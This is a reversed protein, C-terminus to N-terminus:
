DGTPIPGWDCPGIGGTFGGQSPSDEQVEYTGICTRGDNFFTILISLDFGGGTIGTLTMIKGNGTGTGQGIVGGQDMITFTVNESSQSIALEVRSSNETTLCYTGSYNRYCSERGFISAFIGLEMLGPEEGLSALDLGDVDEDGDVDDTCVAEGSLMVDLPSHDADSSIIQLVANKLGTTEPAFTITMSCDEKPALSFPANPCPNAGGPALSFEAVDAGALDLSDVFLVGTGINSFSFDQSDHAGLVGVTGFDYYAPAALVRPKNIMGGSVPLAYGTNNDKPLASMDGLWMGAAWARTVENAATTSSWYFEPLLGTFGEQNLWDATSYEGHNMLSLLEKRNPLRWTDSNCSSLGNAYALADDWSRQVTDPNKLWVLGTLNDMLCEGLDAFRPMPLPLGERLDGDDGETYSDTQGTRWLRAPGSSEGRVPWVRPSYFPDSKDDADLYGWMDVVKAKNTNVANTTSTWFIGYPVSSFGQSMLWSPIDSQGAHILSEMEVVSPLRWDYFGLYGNSNLCSIYDLAEYWNKFTAPACVGPGSTDASRSWNLGSLRDLVAEEDVPTTGDPNTFRPEPWSIGAQVADDGDDGPMYSTEQGTRPLDLNLTEATGAQRVTVIQDEVTIM